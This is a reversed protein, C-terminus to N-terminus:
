KGEWGYAIMHTQDDSCDNFYAMGSHVYASKCTVTITDYHLTVMKLKSASTPGDDCGALAAAMLVM